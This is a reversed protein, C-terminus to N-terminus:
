GSAISVLVALVWITNIAIFIYSGYVMGYVMGYIAIFVM